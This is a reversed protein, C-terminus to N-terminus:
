KGWVNPVFLKKKRPVSRPKPTTTIAATTTDQITDQRRRSAGANYYKRRYYDNWYQRVYPDSSAYRNYGQYRYDDYRPVDYYNVNQNFEEGTGVYPNIPATSDQNGAYGSAIPFQQPRTDSQVPIANNYYYQTKYGDQPYFFASCLVSSFLLNKVFLRICLRCSFRISRMSAM